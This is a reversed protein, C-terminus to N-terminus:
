FPGPKWEWGDEGRVTELLLKEKARQVTIWSFGEEEALTRIEAVFRVGDEMLGTLFKAAKEGSGEQREPKGGGRPKPKLVQSDQMEALWSAWVHGTEESDETADVMYGFTGMRGSVNNKLCSFYRKKPDHEDVSMAFSVRAASNFAGSGMVRNIAEQHENKNVHNTGMIAVNHEKAFSNLKGLNYRVERNNNANINGLFDTIPDFIILSTDDHLKNGLGDLDELVIFDDKELVGKINPREIILFSCKSLDAGASELKPRIKSNIDDEKAVFIVRGPECRTRDVPWLGGSSITGAFSAMALSKGAGTPGFTLSLAGRPIWGKWLWDTRTKEIKDISILTIRKKGWQRPRDSLDVKHKKLVNVLVGLGFGPMPNAEFDQWKREALARDKISKGGCPITLWDEISFGNAYFARGIIVWEPNGELTIGQLKKLFYGREEESLPSQPTDDYVPEAKEGTKILAAVMSQSIFKDPFSEKLETQNGYFLRSPDRCATDGGFVAIAGSYLYRMNDPNTIPEKLQFLVRVCHKDPTHSSTAYYGAGYDKYLENAQMESISGNDIDVLLLSNALFNTSTRHGGEKLQACVASGDVTLADFIRDFPLEVNKWGRSLDVRNGYRDVLGRGDESSTPKGIWGYNLSVKLTNM